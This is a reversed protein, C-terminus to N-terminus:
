GRRDFWLYVRGQGDLAVHTVGSPATVGQPIPHVNMPHCGLWGDPQLTLTQDGLRLSLRLDPVAHPEHTLPASPCQAASVAYRKGALMFAMGSMRRVSCPLCVRYGDPLETVSGGLRNLTRGANQLEQSTLALGTWDIFVLLGRSEVRISRSRLALPQLQQLGRVIDQDAWADDVHHHPQNYLNRLPVQDLRCTRDQLEALVADLARQSRADTHLNLMRAHQLLDLGQQRMPNVSTVDSSWAGVGALTPAAGSTTALSGWAPPPAAASSVSGLRHRWETWRPQPEETDPRADTQAYEQLLRQLDHVIDQALSLVSPHGLSLQQSMTQVVDAQATLGLRSLATVLDLAHLAAQPMDQLPQSLSSQLGDLTREADALLLTLHDHRTTESM